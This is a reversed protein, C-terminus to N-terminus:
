RPQAKGSIVIPSNCFLKVPEDDIEIDIPDYSPLGAPCIREIIPRPTVPLGSQIFLVGLLFGISIFLLTMLFSFFVRGLSSQRRGSM